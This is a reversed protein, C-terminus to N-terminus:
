KKLANLWLPTLEVTHSPFRDKLDALLPVAQSSEMRGCGIQYDGGETKVALGEEVLDDGSMSIFHIKGEFYYEGPTPFIDDLQYVAFGTNHYLRYTSLQYASLTNGSADKSLIEVFRVCFAGPKKPSYNFPYTKIHNDLFGGAGIWYEGDFNTNIKFEQWEQAFLADDRIADANAVIGSTSCGYIPGTKDPPVTLEVWDTEVTGDYCGGMDEAADGKVHDRNPAFKFKFRYSAGGELGSYFAYGTSYHTTSRGAPRTFNSFAEWADGSGRLRKGYVTFAVDCPSNDIGSELVLTNDAARLFRLKPTVARLISEAMETSPMITQAEAKPAPWSETRAQRVAGTAVDQHKLLAIETGKETISAGVGGAVTLLCAGVMISLATVAASKQKNFRSIMLIRRRLENKDEAMGIAPMSAAATKLSLTRLLTDGYDSSRGGSLEMVLKDASTELASRYRRYAIHSFPNFWQAATPLYGLVSWLSDNRAVHCLEHLLIFRRQEPLLRAFSELPLIIVPSILGFLSPSCDAGGDVLRVAKLARRRTNLAPRKGSKMVCSDRMAGHCEELLDLTAPDRVEPMRKVRRAFWVWGVTLRALALTLGIAWAAVLWGAWSVAKASNIARSLWAATSSPHSRPTQPAAATNIPAATASQSPHTIVPAKRPDHWNAATFGSELEVGIVKPHIPLRLGVLFLAMVTLWMIRRLGATLQRAFLRELLLAAMTAAAGRLAGDLLFLSVSEIM